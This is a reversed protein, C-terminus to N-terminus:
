RNNSGNRIGAKSELVALRTETQVIYQQLRESERKMENTMEKVDGRLGRGLWLVVGAWLTFALTFLSIILDTSTSAQAEM